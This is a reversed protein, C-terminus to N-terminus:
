IVPPVFAAVYRSLRSPQGPIAKSTKEENEAVTSM